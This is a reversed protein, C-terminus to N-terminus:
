ESPKWEVTKMAGWIGRIGSRKAEKVLNDYSLSGQYVLYENALTDTNQIALVIEPAPQERGWLFALSFFKRGEYWEYKRYRGQSLTIEKTVRRRKGSELLKSLNTQHTAWTNVRSQVVKFGELIGRKLFFDNEPSKDNCSSEMNNILDNLIRKLLAMPIALKKM